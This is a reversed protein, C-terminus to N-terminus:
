YVVGETGAIPVKQGTGMKLFVRNNDGLIAHDDSMKLGFRITKFIEEESLGLNDRAIWVTPESSKIAPHLYSDDEIEQSYDDGYKKDPVIEALQAVRSYRNVHFYRNIINANPDPESPLKSFDFKFFNYLAPISRPPIPDILSVRSNRNSVARDGGEVVGRDYMEALPIHELLPNIALNLLIHYVITATILLGMLVIPGVAVKISFLGLLCLEAFYVGVMLHQLARPFAAGNTNQGNYLCLLLQVQFGSVHPSVRCLCIRPCHSCHLLLRNSSYTLSLISTPCIM